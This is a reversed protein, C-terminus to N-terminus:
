PCPFASLTRVPSGGPGTQQGGPNTATVVYAFMEGPL